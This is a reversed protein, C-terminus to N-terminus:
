RNVDLDSRHDARISKHCNLTGLGETQILITGGVVPLCKERISPCEFPTPRRNAMGQVRM